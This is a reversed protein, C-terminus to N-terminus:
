QGLRELKLRGTYGRRIHMAGLQFGTPPWGEPAQDMLVLRRYGFGAKRVDAVRRRTWWHVVPSVFVVNPALTMAHNLFSRFKSWPPNTPGVWTVRTKWDFFDKGKDIECTRVRGYKKLARAFSGDGACPDLITSKPKFAAAVQEALTSPTMVRDDGNPPIAARRPTVDIVDLQGVRRLALKAERISPPLEPVRAAKLLLFDWHEAIRMYLQATAPDQTWHKELWAGWKGHSGYRRNSEILIEGVRRAHLLASQATASRIQWRQTKKWKRTRDDLMGFRSVCGFQVDIARGGQASSIIRTCIPRPWLRL